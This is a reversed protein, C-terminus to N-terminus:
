GVRPVKTVINNNDVFVRVRDTRYDMTIFSNEPVTFVNTLNSKMKIYQVALTGDKGLMEPWSYKGNDESSVPKSVNQPNQQVNTVPIDVTILSGNTIPVIVRVTNIYLLTNGNTIRVSLSYLFIPQLNNPITMEYNIPFGILNSLETANIDKAAMDPISTDEFHVACSSGAPISVTKTADGDLLIRGRLIAGISYQLICIFILLRLM